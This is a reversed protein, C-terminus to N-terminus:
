RAGFLTVLLSRAGLQPSWDLGYEQLIMTLVSEGVLSFV